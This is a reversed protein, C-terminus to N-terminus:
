DVCWFETANRSSTLALAFRRSPGNQVGSSDDRAIAEGPAQLRKPPSPGSCLRANRFCIDWTHNAFCSSPSALTGSGARNWPNAAAEFAQPQLPLSTGSHEAASLRRRHEVATGGSHRCDM